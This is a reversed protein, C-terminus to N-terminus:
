KYKKIEYTLLAETFYINNKKNLPLNYVNLTIIAELSSIIFNGEWVGDIEM